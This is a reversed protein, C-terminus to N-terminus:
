SFEGSVRTIQTQSVNKLLNGSTRQFLITSKAYAPHGSWRFLRKWCIWFALPHLCCRTMIYLLADKKLAFTPTRRKMSVRKSWQTHSGIRCYRYLHERWTLTQQVWYHSLRHLYTRCSNTISKHRFKLVDACTQSGAASSVTLPQTMSRFLQKLSLSLFSFWDAFPNKGAFFILSVSLSKTFARPERHSMRNLNKSLIVWYFMIKWVWHHKDGM